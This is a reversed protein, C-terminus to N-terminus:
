RPRCGAAPASEAPHRAARRSPSPVMSLPRNVAESNLELTPNSDVLSLQTPAMDFSTFTQM